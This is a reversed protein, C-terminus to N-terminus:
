ARLNLRHLLEQYFSELALNNGTQSFIAGTGDVRVKGRSITSGEPMLQSDDLSLILTDMTKRPLCLRATARNPAPAAYEGSATDYRYRTGSPAVILIKGMEGPAPSSYALKGFQRLFTKRIHRVQKDYAPINGNATDPVTKLLHAFHRALAAFSVGFQPLELTTMAPGVIIYTNWAIDYNELDSSVRGLAERLGYAILSPNIYTIHNTAVLLNRRKLREPLNHERAVNEMSNIFEDLNSVVGHVLETPTWVLRQGYHEYIINEPVDVIPTFEPKQHWFHTHYALYWQRRSDDAASMTEYLREAAQIVAPDIDLATLGLNNLVVAYDSEFGQKGAIAEPHSKLYDM